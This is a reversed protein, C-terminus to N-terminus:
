IKKLFGLNPEYVMGKDMLSNTITEIDKSSLGDEEGMRILDEISAGAPGIDLKDLYGLVIDEADVGASTGEDTKESNLSVSGADGPLGFDISEDPLLRILADQIMRLYITSDPMDYSNIATMIGDADNDSYGKDKLMKEDVDPIRLVDRMRVLRDWVSKATELLWRKYDSEEVPVIHEPRVSVFTRGDQTDYTRVKGIISVYCPTEINAMSAAAEQQFRGVNIFFNGAVDQVKGRWMPEDESGANEKDTLVGSIMVRNIMLGLPSIVYSPSMEETGKKSVISSNLEKSFVRYATERSM